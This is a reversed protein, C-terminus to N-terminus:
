DDKSGFLKDLAQKKLKDELSLEEEEETENNGAEEEPTTPDTGPLAPDASPEADNVIEGQLPQGTETEDEQPAPTDATSNEEDAVADEDTPTAEEEAPADDKNSGLGLADELRGRAENKLSDELSEGEQTNIGQQELLDKIQNGAVNRLIKRSDISVKPASFTGSILIPVLTRKKAEEVAMDTLVPMLNITMSQKPLNVKGEGTIVFYPGTMLINETTVVGNEVVFGSTLSAFDTTEADGRAATIAESIADKNIKGDEFGRILKDTSRVIKGLNIGQLAGDLLSFKGTGDISRILAAQSNGRATVDFQMGGIGKVQHIGLVEKAFNQANLKGLTFSAGLAPRKYRGNLTLRGSGEGNYLTLSKLDASLEGNAITLNLASKDFYMNPLRIGTATGTLDLDLVTLAKFDMPADSWDPFPAKEDARAQRQAKDPAPLYPMLDLVGFELTGAVVPKKGGWNIKIDGSAAIDDFTMNSLSLKAQTPSGAVTGNLALKNFGNSAPIETGIASMLVRLAPANINIDGAYALPEDEARAALTMATSIKNDAITATLSLKTEQHDIFKQPTTMTLAFKTPRGQFAMVGEAQLPTALSALTLSIDADRAEYVKGAMADRYTVAGQKLMVTGLRLDHVASDQSQAAADPEGLLWNVAGSKNKELNIVPRLLGFRTIEVNKRMLPLLKIGINAAEVEAFPQNSMGPANAITMKTVAFAPNPLLRIKLDDGITVERNLAASAQAEIKEKFVSAPIVLPLVFAAVVIIIILGIFFTFIKRM